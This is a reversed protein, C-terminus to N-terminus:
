ILKIDVTDSITRGGAFELEVTFTVDMPLGEDIRDLKLTVRPFALPHYSLYDQVKIEKPFQGIVKKDSSIIYDETSDYYYFRCLVAHDSIDEGANCGFLPVSAKVRIDTLEETRYEITKFVTTPLTTASRTLPSANSRHPRPNGLYIKLAQEIEPDPEESYAYYNDCEEKRVGALQINLKCSDADSEVANMGSHNYLWLYVCGRNAFSIAVDEMKNFIVKEGCSSLTMVASVAISLIVLKRM